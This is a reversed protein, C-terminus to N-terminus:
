VPIQFKVRRMRAAEELKKRAEELVTDDLSVSALVRLRFGLEAGLSRALGGDAGFAFINNRLINERGYHQHLTSSTRPERKMRTSERLEHDLPKRKILGLAQGSWPNRGM